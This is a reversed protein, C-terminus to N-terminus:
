AAVRGGREREAALDAALTGLRDLEDPRFGFSRQMASRTAAGSANALEILGRAMQHAIVADRRAEATRREADSDCLVLAAGCERRAQILQFRIDVANTGTLM